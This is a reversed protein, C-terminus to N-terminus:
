YQVTETYQVKDDVKVEYTSPGSDTETIKATISGSGKEVTKDYVVSTKGDKTKTIVVHATTGTIGSLDVPLSIEKKTPEAEAGKSVTIDVSTGEEVSNGQAIGQLIVTGKTKSSFEEIVEGVRLGVSSLTSKAKELTLGSLSPVKVYTIKPGKSVVISVEGDKEIQENSGPSQSVILGAEMEDSYEEKQSGLSLGQDKLTIRATEIDMGILDPVAVPQSGKSTYVKLTSGEELTQGSVTEQRIVKGKEYDDSFEEGIVQLNLGEHALINKAEAETMGVVNPVRVQSQFMDGKAAMYVGSALIVTLFALIIATLTGKKKQRAKIKSSRIVTPQSKKQVKQPIKKPIKQAINTKAKRAENRQQQAKRQKIMEDNIPPIAQTRSELEEAAKVSSALKGTSRYSKLDALLAKADQYREIQDKKMAKMIMFELERPIDPNIDRPPVPEEQIHKIAVTIPSEGEYPVRGTAMEYMVVGLSYIDSRKDVFSGRAQEPSLYHASGLVGGNNTMTVSSTARAIGFDTVKVRGDETIMINQPKIDRHVIGNRHADELAEAILISTEVTERTGLHGFGKIVEKLTKGKIYEMVIYHKGDEEGVDYVGVINPHTLAAAAQAERKFKQLVDEDSNFQDRLVKIAVYRNLLRCRAKYVEAMGGAGIKEKVEYRNGLIKGIM